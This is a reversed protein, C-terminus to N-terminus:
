QYPYLLLKHVETWKLVLLNEMQPFQATRARSFLEGFSMISWQQQHKDDVAFHCSKPNKQKKRLALYQRQNHKVTCTYSLVCSNHSQATDSIDMINIEHM